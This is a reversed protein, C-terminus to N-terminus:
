QTTIMTVSNNKCRGAVACPVFQVHVLPWQIYRPTDHLEASSATVGVGNCVTSVCITTKELLSKSNGEEEQQQLRKEREVKCNMLWMLGLPNGKGPQNILAGM